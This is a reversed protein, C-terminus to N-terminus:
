GSKPETVRGIFMVIGTKTDRLVFLFPHDVVFPIPDAEKPPMGGARAMSVATAAAAEAGKEDVAVFAKHFVNAILLRDEPRKFVHIGTFDAKERDFALPMGLAVLADKLRLPEGPEVKFKPLAVSVRQSELGGLWSEIEGLKGEAAALGDRKKPLIVDMAFRATFFPLELVQVDGADKYLLHDVRHMTPVKAEKTGDVFFPKSQTAFAEFQEVWTAKFYLANVLVMRTDGTVGEEPILDVIRQHTQGKVWDNIHVRSPQPAGAFDVLEAPAGFGERTSKMFPEEVKLTKETFIRNAVRLELSGEDRAADPRPGATQWEYLVGQFAKELAAPALTLHMAKKMEAATDARAGLSTMGLAFAISAPSITFNGPNKAGLARYLDVGLANQATALAEVDTAPPPAPLKAPLTPEGASPAATATSVATATPRPASITATPKATEPAPRPTADACGASLAAAAVLPLARKMGATYGMAGRVAIPM